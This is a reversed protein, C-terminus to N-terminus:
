ANSIYKPKEAIDSSLSVEVTRTIGGLEISDDSSRSQLYRFPQPPPKKPGAATTSTIGDDPRLNSTSHEETKVYGRSPTWPGTRSWQYRTLGLKGLVFQLVPRLTAISTAIIGIGPEVTSWIAFNTTADLFTDIQTTPAIAEARSVYFIRGM